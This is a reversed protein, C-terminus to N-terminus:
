GFLATAITSPDVPKECRTFGAYRAPISAEDYGTAFVFPVGRDILADAVPYVLDGHLNIDIVAADLRDTGEILDLADDIRAAPGVVSAGSAQLTHMLDEAIFYEDEVLLIYRGAFSPGLDATM